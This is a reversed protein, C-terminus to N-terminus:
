QRNSAIELTDAVIQNVMQFRLKQNNRTGPWTRLITGDRRVLLHSPVAMTFLSEPPAGEKSSWMYAPANVGLSAAYKYFEDPPRTTTVSVLVYPVHAESLQARVDYLEDRAVWSGPCDPDVTAFMLIDSSVSDTLKEGGPGSFRRLDLREGPSPGSWEQNMHQSFDYGGRKRFAAQPHSGSKAAFYGGVAVLSFVATYVSLLKAKSRMNHANLPRV